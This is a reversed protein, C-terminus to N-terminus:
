QMIQGYISYRGEHDINGDDAFIMAKRRNVDIEPKGGERINGLSSHVMKNLISSLALHRRDFCM